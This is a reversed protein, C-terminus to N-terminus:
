SSNCLFHLPEYTPMYAQFYRHFIYVTSTHSISKRQALFQQDHRHQTSEKEKVIDVKDCIDKISIKLCKQPTEIM